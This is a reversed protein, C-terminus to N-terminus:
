IHFYSKGLNIYKYGLAALGTSVMADALGFSSWLFLWSLPFPYGMPPTRGLGNSILNRRGLRVERGGADVSGGGSLIVVAVFFHLLLTASTHRHTPAM